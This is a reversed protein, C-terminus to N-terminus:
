YVFMVFGEKAKAAEEILTFLEQIAPLHKKEENFNAEIQDEFHGEWDEDSRNPIAKIFDLERALDEVGQEANRECHARFRHINRWEELVKVKPLAQSLEEALQNFKKWAPGKESFFLKMEQQAAKVEEHEFTVIHPWDKPPYLEIPPNFPGEGVNEIQFPIKTQKWQKVFAFFELGDRILFELHETRLRKGTYDCLTELVYATKHASYPTGKKGRLLESVLDKAPEEGRHFSEDFHGLRTKEKELIDLRHKSGKQCLERLKKLSIQFSTINTGM